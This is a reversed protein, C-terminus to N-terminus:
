KVKSFGTFRFQYGSKTIKFQSFRHYYNVGQLFAYAKNGLSLKTDSTTILHVSPRYGPYSFKLWAVNDIHGRLQGKNSSLYLGGFKAKVEFITGGSISNGNFTDDSVFDPVTNRNGIMKFGNRFNHYRSGFAKNTLMFNEFIDEFLEGLEQATCNLCKGIKNAYKELDSKSFDQWGHSIAHNLASTMLGQRLGDWFSGGTAWSGLGGSLGGAAIMIEPGQKLADAGSSM